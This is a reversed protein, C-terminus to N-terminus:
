GNEAGASSDLHQIATKRRRWLVAGIGGILLLGASALLPFVTSGTTALNDERQASAAGATSSPIASGAAPPPLVQGPDVGGAPTTPTTTPPPTTPIAPAPRLMFVDASIDLGISFVTAAPVPIGGRLSLCEMALTAGDGLGFDSLVSVMPVQAPMSGEILPVTASIVVVTGDTRIAALRAADRFGAPCAVPARAAAFSPQAALSGGAIIQSDADLLTLVGVSNAPAAPASAHAAAPAGLLLAAVGVVTVRHAATKLLM